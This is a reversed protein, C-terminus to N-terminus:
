FTAPAFGPSNLVQMVDSGFGLVILGLKEGRTVLSKDVYLSAIAGIFKKDAYEPFFERAGPMNDAFDQIEQPNLRSKTENVLVYDGCAAVVDFERSRGREVPHQRQVRVALSQIGHPPCHIIQRLINPVSPAVLDEAMTGMKHSLEGWKRNMEITTRRSEEKFERMEEKFEQMEIQFSRFERSTREVQRDVRDVTRVLETMMQELTIVRTELLMDLM